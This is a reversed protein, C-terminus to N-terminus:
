VSKIEQYTKLSATTYSPLRRTVPIIRTHTSSPRSAMPRGAPIGIGCSGPVASGGDTMESLVKLRGKAKVVEIKGAANQVAM